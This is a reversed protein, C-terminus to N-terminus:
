PLTLREVARLVGTLHALEQWTAVLEDDSAVSLDRVAEVDDSLQGVTVNPEQYTEFAAEVPVTWYQDGVLRLFPGHDREVATLVRNIAIRIEELGIVSEDSM